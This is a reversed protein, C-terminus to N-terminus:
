TLSGALHALRRLVDNQRANFIAVFRADMQLCYSSADTWSKVTGPMSFNYCFEGARIWDPGGCTEMHPVKCLSPQGKGKGGRKKKKGGKDDAGRAGRLFIFEKDRKPRKHKVKIKATIKDTGGEPEKKSKKCSIGGQWKKSMTLQVCGTDNGIPPRPELWNIYDVYTRDSWRWREKVLQLGIWATINATATVAVDNEEESHISALHASPHLKRCLSEALNFTESKDETLRFCFDKHSKWDDPCDSVCLGVLSLIIALHLFLRTTEVYRSCTGSAQGCPANRQRGGGQRKVPINGIHKAMEFSVTRIWQVSLFCTIPCFGVSDTIHRGIAVAHWANYPLTNSYRM